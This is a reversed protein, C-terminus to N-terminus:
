ANRERALKDKTAQYKKKAADLRQMREELGKNINQVDIRKSSLETAFASLQNRLIAVEGDLNKRDADARTM